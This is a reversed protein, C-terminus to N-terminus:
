SSFCFRPFHQARLESRELNGGTGERWSPPCAQEGWSGEARSGRSARGSELSWDTTPSLPSSVAWTNTCTTLLHALGELQEPEWPETARGGTPGELLSREGLGPGLSTISFGGRSSPPPPSFSPAPRLFLSCLLGQDEQTCRAQQSFRPATQPCVGLTSAGRKGGKRM